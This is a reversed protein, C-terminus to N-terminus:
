ALMAIATRQIEDVTQMVKINAGFSDKASILNVAARSLDVSDAATGPDAIQSAAIEFHTQSQELGQLAISSIDVIQKDASSSFKSANDM